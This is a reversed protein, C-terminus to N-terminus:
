DPKKAAKKKAPQRQQAPAGWTPDKLESNWRLWAAQLEKVKEPQKEALNNQEGIDDRLNFLLGGDLDPKGRKLPARDGNSDRTAVLKWDGARIAWQAGFRWYLADHPPTNIRGSLYPLLNVGDLKFDSKIEVGAAALATPLIDLQIVPQDYVTGTPLTGKWQLLFPV